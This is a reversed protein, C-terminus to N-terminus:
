GKSNVSHLPEHKVEPGLDFEFQTCWTQQRLTILYTVTTAISFHGLQKSIIGRRVAM